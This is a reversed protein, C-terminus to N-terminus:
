MVQTKEGNYIAPIFHCGTLRNEVEKKLWKSGPTERYTYYGWVKGDRRVFCSFMLLADQQGKEMLKKTDIVNILANPGNGILAPRFRAEAAHLDALDAISFWAVLAFAVQRM